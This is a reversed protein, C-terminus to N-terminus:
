TAGLIHGCRYDAPKVLFDVSAEGIGFDFRPKGIDTAVHKRERGGLESLEEGGARM